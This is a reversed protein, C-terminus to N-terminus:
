QPLTFVLGGQLSFLLVTSNLSVGSSPGGTGYGFYVGAYNIPCQLIAQARFGIFENFMATGGFKFEFYFKSSSSLNRELIDRNVDTPTSILVGLGGGIFGYVPGDNTTRVSGISIWDLNTNAIKTEFPAFTIDRLRVEATNRYYNVQFIFNSGTNYGISANYGSGEKVKIYGGFYDIKTGFQYGYLGTFEINQSKLSPILLFLCTVLLLRKM